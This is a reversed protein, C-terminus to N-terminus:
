SDSDSDSPEESDGDDTQTSKSDQGRELGALVAALRIATPHEERGVICGRLTSIAAQRTSEDTPDILGLLRLAMGLNAQYVWQADNRVAQNFKDAAAHAAELAAYRASELRETLSQPDVERVGARYALGLAQRHSRLDNASQLYIASELLNLQGELANLSSTLWNREGQIQNQIPTQATPSAESKRQGAASIRSSEGQKAARVHRNAKDLHDSRAAEEATEAEAVSQVSQGVLEALRKRLSDIQVASREQSAELTGRTEEFQELSVRLDDRAVVLTELRARATALEREIAALSRHYRARTGDSERIYRGTLFDGPPEARVGTVTGDRVAELAGEAESMAKGTQRIARVHAVFADADRSDYNTAVAREFALRAAEATARRADVRSRHDLLSAELGSVVKEQVSIQDSFENLSRATDEVVSNINRADRVAQDAARVREIESALEIIRPRLREAQVRHRLAEFRRGIARYYEVSALLRNAAVHDRVLGLAESLAAASDRLLGDNAECARRTQSRSQRLAQAQQDPGGGLGRMLPDGGVGRGGELRRWERQRSGVQASVYFAEDIVSEPYGWEKMFERTEDPVQQRGDDYARRLDGLVQDVQEVFRANDAVLGRLLEPDIEESISGAGMPIAEGLTVYSNYRGLLRRAKEVLLDAESRNRSDAGQLSPTALFLGTGIAMVLLVVVTGIGISKM